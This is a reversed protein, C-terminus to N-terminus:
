QAGVVPFASMISELGALATPLYTQDMELKFNLRNGIGPQDLVEGEVTVHGNGDGKLDVDLWGEMTAFKAQGTLSKHLQRLQRHFKFFDEARLEAQVGGTFGGVAVEVECTLWNGDWYDDVGPHTRALPRVRLFQSGPDGLLFQPPIGSVENRPFISRGGM